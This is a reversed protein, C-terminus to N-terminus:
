GSSLSTPFCHFRGLLSRVLSGGIWGAVSAVFSPYKKSRGAKWFGVGGYIIDSM